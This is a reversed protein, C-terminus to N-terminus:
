EDPVGECAVTLHTLRRAHSVPRARCPGSCAPPRSKVSSQELVSTLGTDITNSDKGPCNFYGTLLQGKRTTVPINTLLNAIEDFFVANNFQSTPRYINAIIISSAGARVYVLQLEFKTSKSQEQLAYNRDVLSDRHIVALGGGRKPGGKESERHVHLVAYGCPTIGTNVAPPADSTIWTETVARLDVNHDAVISHIKVSKNVASRM